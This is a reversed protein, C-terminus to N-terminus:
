AEVEGEESVDDGMAEPVTDVNTFGNPRQDKTMTKHRKSGRDNAEDSGSREHLLGGSHVHDGNSSMSRENPEVQREPDRERKKSEAYPDRGETVPSETARPQNENAPTSDRLGKRAGRTKMHEENSDEPTKEHINAGKGNKAPTHEYIAALYNCAQKISRLDVGILEWWPSGDHGDTIEVRCHKAAAYLASAAIVRSSFLLCLVTMCSDNIFAWAANRLSKNDVEGLFKLDEFLNKYPPVLSLDFCLAELLVDENHLINDRWRWYEKDQEDVFKHPDKQAVRVCAIVLEKMKRCNEEVKTALFLSTAAMSYYHYGPRGGIDVMSHRVFFRHLLVSATALTIQPLKLMIGVQFIFNVGKRRNEREKEPSLGDLISPTRLLEPERFIWQSEAMMIIENPLSFTQRTPSMNKNTHWYYQVEPLHQGAGLRNILRSPNQPQLTEAFPFPPRSCIHQDLATGWAHCM